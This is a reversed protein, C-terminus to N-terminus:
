GFGCIWIKKREEWKLQKIRRLEKKREEEEGGGRKCENTAPSGAFAIFCELIFYFLIPKESSSTRKNGTKLKQQV